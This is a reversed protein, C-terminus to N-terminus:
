RFPLEPRPRAHEAGRIERAAGAAAEAVLPEREGMARVLFPLAQPDGVAGLAVAAARRVLHDPDRLLRVLCPVAVRSRRSGLFSAAGARVAPEPDGLLEFALALASPGAAAIAECVADPTHTSAAHRIRMAAPLTSLPAVGAQRDDRLLAAAALGAAVLSCYRLTKM